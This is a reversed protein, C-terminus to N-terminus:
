LTFIEHHHIETLYRLNLVLTKHDSNESMQKFKKLESDTSLIECLPVNDDLYDKCDSIHAFQKLPVFKNQFHQDVENIEFIAQALKRLSYEDEEAQPFLFPSNRRVEQGIHEEKVPIDGKILKERNEEKYQERIKMNNAAESNLESFVFQYDKESVMPRYSSNRPSPVEDQNIEHFGQTTRSFSISPPHILPTSPAETEETLWEKYYVALRRTGKNLEDNYIDDLMKTKKARSVMRAISEKEEGYWAKVHSLHPLFFQEWLAPLLIARAEYPADCFVQLLHEAAIRENQQIKCVVSLYLYACAAFRSNSSLWTIINLKTFVKLLVRKSTGEEITREITTIAKELKAFLGGDKQDKENMDNAGLCTNCRHRLSARFSEDKLFAKIHSNLISIVAQIAADRISPHMGENRPTPDDFNSKLELIKNKGRWNKEDERLQSRRNMMRMGQPEQPSEDCWNMRLCDAGQAERRFKSTKSRGYVVDSRAKSDLFTSDLNHSFPTKDINSYLPMSVARPAAGTTTSRTRRTRTRFGDEALLDGLSAMEKSTTTRRRRQQQEPSDM